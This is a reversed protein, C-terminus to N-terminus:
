TFVFLVFYSIVNGQRVGNKALFNDSCIGNWSIGTINNTYM